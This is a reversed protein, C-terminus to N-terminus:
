EHYKGRPCCDEGRQKRCIDERDFSMIEQLRIRDHIIDKDSNLEKKIWNLVPEVDDNSEEIQYYVWRGEKRSKLIGANVLQGMLRSVSAGKIQLLEILHCACLEGSVMIAAVARLRNRDSLAKLILLLRVM